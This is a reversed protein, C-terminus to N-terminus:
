QLASVLVFLSIKGWGLGMHYLYKREPNRVKSSRQSKCHSRCCAAESSRKETGLSSKLWHIAAEANTITEATTFSKSNIIFMTTEPDLLHLKSDIDAPDINSVFKSKITGNRFPRLAADAM